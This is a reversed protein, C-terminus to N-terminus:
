SYMGHDTITVTAHRSPDRALDVTSGLPIANPRVAGTMAKPDM